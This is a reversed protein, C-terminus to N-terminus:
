DNIIGKAFIKNEKLKNKLSEYSIPNLDMETILTKQQPYSKWIHTDSFAVVSTKFNDKITKLYNPHSLNTVEFADWILDYLDESKFHDSKGVHPIRIIDFDNFINNAKEITIGRKPIELQAIKKIKLLQDKPLNEPFIYILNAIVGNKRVVNAEIAPLFIMGGTKGLESCELYLDVDFVNHDSFAALKIGAKYLKSVTDHTSEWKISDGNQSSAYSHLHLDIKIM